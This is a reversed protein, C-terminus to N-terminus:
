LECHSLGLDLSVQERRTKKHPTNFNFSCRVISSRETRIQCNELRRYWGAGVRVLAYVIIAYWYPTIATM